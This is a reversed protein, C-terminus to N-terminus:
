RCNIGGEMREMCFHQVSVKKKAVRIYELLTYDWLQIEMIGNWCDCEWLEIENRSM